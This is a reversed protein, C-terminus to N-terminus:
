PHVAIFSASPVAKRRKFAVIAGILLLALSALYAVFLVASDALAPIVGPAVSGALLVAATLLLAGLGPRTGALATGALAIAGAVVTAVAGVIVTDPGGVVLAAIGSALALGGGVVGIFRLATHM